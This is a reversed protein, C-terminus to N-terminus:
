GAIPPVPVLGVLLAALLAGLIPGVIPVWAYGWDSSGKGPVPLVQHALRPFLDRAPNIAYGTPGGLSLGIAFVTLSVPLLGVAGLGLKPATAGVISAPAMWLVALILVFTGVTECLLNWGPSRIAPGTCFVGLKGAADDTADFQLKYVLFVMVAGLFAGIAQGGLYAGLLGADLRGAAYLGITVAPNLHAGSLPAVTAAAVYVAFAWGATVVIWGADSGKSRRLVVNAVVGDGLLILIFTGILEGVFETM